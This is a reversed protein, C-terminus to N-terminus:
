AYRAAAMAAAAIALLGAAARQGIILISKTRLDDGGTRRLRRIAGGVFLAQVILAVIASVGGAGLLQEATGFSGQHLAQWLYGGAGIAILAAVIQASFLRDSGAGSLRALAFTTGAWFTAALVHVSLAVILVIQM